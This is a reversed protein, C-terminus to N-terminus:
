RSDSGDLKATYTEGSAANMTLQDGDLKYTTVLENGSGSQKTIVCNGSTAHVGSPAIGSRKAVARAHRYRRLAENPENRDEEGPFRTQSNGGFLLRFCLGTLGRPNSESVRLGFWASKVV